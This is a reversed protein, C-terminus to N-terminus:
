TPLYSASTIVGTSDWGTRDPEKKRGEVALELELGVGAMSRTVTVADRRGLLCNCLLFSPVFSSLAGPFVGALSRTEVLPATGPALVLLPVRLTALASVLWRPLLLLLLVLM